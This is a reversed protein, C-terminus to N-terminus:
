NVIDYPAGRCYFDASSASNLPNLPITGDSGVNKWLIILLTGIASGAQISCSLVFNYRDWWDRHRHFIVYNFVFALFFASLTSAQNTGHVVGLTLVPVNILIWYKHPWYYDCIRPIFSLLFGILFGYFLWSYGTTSGFFKQPGVSGWISASMSFTRYITAGWVSEIQSLQLKLASLVWFVSGTSAIAGILTGYIQAGVVAIPSIHMYHAIKLDKILFLCQMLITTGLAKFSMVPITQGPLLYGILELLVNIGVRSGTVACIIGIPLVLAGGIFISLLCAWIPM